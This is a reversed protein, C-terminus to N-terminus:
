DIYAGAHTQALVGVFGAIFIVLGIDKLKWQKTSLLYVGLFPIIGDKVDALFFNTYNLRKLSQFKLLQKM